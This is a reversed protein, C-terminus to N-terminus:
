TLLGKEVVILEMADLLREYYSATLYRAPPLREVADRLEDLTLLKRQRLVATLAYVRAEWDARLPETDIGVPVEGFGSQGGIDHVRSM